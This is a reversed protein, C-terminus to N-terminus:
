FIYNVRFFRQIKASLNKTNTALRMSSRRHSLSVQIATAPLLIIPLNPVLYLITKLVLLLQYLTLSMFFCFKCSYQLINLRKVGLSVYIPRVAGSVELRQM